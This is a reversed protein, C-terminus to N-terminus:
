RLVSTPDALLDPDVPGCRFKVDFLKSHSQADLKLVPQPIRLGIHGTVILEDGALDGQSMQM